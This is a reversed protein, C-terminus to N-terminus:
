AFKVRNPGPALIKVWVARNLQLFHLPWQTNYIMNFKCAVFM